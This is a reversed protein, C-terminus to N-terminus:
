FDPIGQDEQKYTTANQLLQKGLISDEFMISNHGGGKIADRKLSKEDRNNKCYPSPVNRKAL